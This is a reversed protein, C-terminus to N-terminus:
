RRRRDHREDWRRDFEESEKRFWDMARRATVAAVILYLIVILVVAGIGVLAVATWSM